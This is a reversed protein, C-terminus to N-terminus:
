DEGYPDPDCTRDGKVCIEEDEEPFYEDDLDDEDGGWAQIHWDLEPHDPAIEVIDVDRTRLEPIFERFDEKAARLADVDDDGAVTTSLEVTIAYLKV